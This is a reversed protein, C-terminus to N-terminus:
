RVPQKPVRVGGAPNPDMTMHFEGNMGNDVFEMKVNKGIGEIFRYTWDEFPYALTSTGSVATITGGSPHSDIEDPPGFSIYIRGRDTKWGPVGSSSAFRAAYGLRRYHENKFENEVTGSTPDRRLWFLESFKERETDTQLKLFATKESDTIIYAVDENLWKQWSGAQVTNQNPAPAQTQWATLALAATIALVGASLVPTLIARPGERPTLPNLLRSIRKM